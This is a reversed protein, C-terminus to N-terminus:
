RLLNWEPKRYKEEEFQKAMKTEEESLTGEELDIGFSKSFGLAIAEKLSRYTIEPNSERLGMMSDAEHGSSSFVRLAQPSTMDLPISGQQLMGGPWRRQASGIIKRGRITIEGYSTSSFCLPNKDVPVGRKRGSAKADLGLSLFAMLFVDSLLSYSKFLEGAFPGSLTGASFSYTLEDGHLIARGGTPRRVFPIDNSECFNMDLDLARQFRGLTVSLRNWRYIRLTPTTSNQISMRAIAEDLAMNFHAGSQGTDLLRWKDANM